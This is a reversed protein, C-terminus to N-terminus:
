KTIMSFVFVNKGNYIYMTEHTVSFNSIMLGPINIKKLTKNTESLLFLNNNKRLIITNKYPKLSKFGSLDYTNILSGYVNYKYVKTKTLVWCYQQTSYMQVITGSISLASAVISNTNPNYVHLQQSQDDFVWLKKSESVAVYGVSGFHANFKFDIKKFAGFQTDLQILTAFNKYFVNTELATTFDITSPVGLAANQYSITKKRTSKFLTNNAIYYWEGFINAGLFVDAKLAKESKLIVSVDNQASVSFVCLLSWLIIHKSVKKLM